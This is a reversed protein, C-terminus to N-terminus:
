LSKSTGQANSQKDIGMLSKARSSSPVADFKAPPLKFTDGLRESFVETNRHVRGALSIPAQAKQKLEGPKKFTPMSDMEIKLKKKTEIPPNPTPKQNKKKRQDQLQDIDVKQLKHKM